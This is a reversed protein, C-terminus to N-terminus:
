RKVTPWHWTGPAKGPDYPVDMEHFGPQGPAGSEHDARSKTTFVWLHAHTSSTLPVGQDHEVYTESDVTVIAPRVANVGFRGVYRVIRGVTPKM